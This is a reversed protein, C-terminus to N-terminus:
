SLCFSVLCDLLKLTGIGIRSNEIVKCFRKVTNSAREIYNTAAELAEAFLNM